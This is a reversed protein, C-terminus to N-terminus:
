PNPSNDPGANQIVSLNLNLNLTPSYNNCCLYITCLASTRIICRIWTPLTSGSHLYNYVYSNEHMGHWACVVKGHTVNNVCDLYKKGNKDFVYQGAGRM